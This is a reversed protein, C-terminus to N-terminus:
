RRFITSIPSPSQNTLKFHRYLFNDLKRPKKMRHYYETFRTELFRRIQGVYQM